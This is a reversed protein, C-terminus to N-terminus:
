TSRGFSSTRKRAGEPVSRDGSGSEGLKSLLVLLDSISYTFTPIKTNSRSMYIRILNRNCLLNCKEERMELNYM